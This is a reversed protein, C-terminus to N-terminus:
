LRAMGRGIVEDNTRVAADYHLIMHDIVPKPFNVEFVFRRRAEPDVIRFRQLEPGVDVGYSGVNFSHDIGDDSGFLDHFEPKPKYPWHPGIFRVFVFFPSKRGHETIWQLVRDMVDADGRGEVYDQCGHGGTMERM